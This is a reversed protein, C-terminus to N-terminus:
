ANFCAGRDDRFIGTRSSALVGGFYDISLFDSSYSGEYIIGKLVKPSITGEIEIKDGIKESANKFINKLISVRKEAFGKIEYGMYEATPGLMKVILDKGGLLAGLITLGSGLDM